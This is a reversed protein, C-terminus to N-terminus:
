NKQSDYFAAIQAMAKGRNTKFSVSNKAIFKKVDQKRDDFVRLVSSKSQVPFYTGNKLIFYKTKADFRAFLQQATIYEQRVKEHKAYVKSLGPYLMEYFGENIKDEDDKGLRVFVQDQMTFREIKEGILEMVSGNLVHETLVKDQSIDYMLPVNEYFNADYVITGFAWDDIPFYPHEDEISRYMIYDSGNYLRSQGKISQFYIKKTNEKAEALVTTDPKLLQAQCIIPVM